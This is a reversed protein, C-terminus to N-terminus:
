KFCAISSLKIVAPTKARETTFAYDCPLEAITIFAGKEEAEIVAKTIKYEQGDSLTVSVRLIEEETSGKATLMVAAKNYSLGSEKLAFDVGYRNQKTTFEGTKAKELQFIEINLFQGIGIVYEYETNEKLREDNTIDIYNIYFYRDSSNFNNSYVKWNNNTGKERVYFHVYGSMDPEIGSLVYNIRAYSMGTSIDIIDVRTTDKPTTFDIKIFEKDYWDRISMEYDTEGELGFLSITDSFNNDATLRVSDEQEIYREKGAKRIYVYLYLQESTYNTMDENLKIAFEQQNYYSKVSEATIDASRTHFTEFVTRVVFYIDQSQKTSLVWKINYEEDPTLSKWLKGGAM